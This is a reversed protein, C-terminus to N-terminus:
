VPRATSIDIVECRQRSEELEALRAYAEEVTPSTALVEAAELCRERGYDNCEMYAAFCNLLLLDDKEPDAASTTAALMIKARALRDGERFAQLLKAEDGSLDGFNDM